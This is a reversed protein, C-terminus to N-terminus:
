LSQGRKRTQKKTPNDSIENKGSHTIQMAKKSQDKLQEVKASVSIDNGERVKISATCEYKQKLEKLEAAFRHYYGSTWHKYILLQAVKEAQESSASLRDLDNLTNSVFGLLKRGEKTEMEEDVTTTAFHDRTWNIKGMKKDLETSSIDGVKIHDIEIPPRYSIDISDLNTKGTQDATYNLEILTLSGEERIWHPITFENIKMHHHYDIFSQLREPLGLRQLQEKLQATHEDGEVSM